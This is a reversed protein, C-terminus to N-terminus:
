YCSVQDETEDETVRYRIKRKLELSGDRLIAAAQDATLKHVFINSRMFVEESGYVKFMAEKATWYQTLVYHDSGATLTLEEDSLFKHRVKSVREHVREIDIGCPFDARMMVVSNGSHSISIHANGDVVPKGTSEYSLHMGPFLHHHLLATAMLQGRRPELRVDAFTNLGLAGCQGELEVISEVITFWAIKGGETAIESTIPM